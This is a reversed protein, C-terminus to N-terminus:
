DNTERPGMAVRRTCVDQKQREHTVCYLMVDRPTDLCYLYMHCVVCFVIIVVVSSIVISLLVSSLLLCRCRVASHARSIILCYVRFTLVMGEGESGNCHGSIGVIRDGPQRPEPNTALAKPDLAQSHVHHPRSMSCTLWEGCSFSEEIPNFDPSYPPLYMLMCGSGEVIERLANTKHITCNDLILISKDQPYPNM